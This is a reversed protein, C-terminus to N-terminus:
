SGDEYREWLSIYFQREVIEGSLAYFKRGYCHEQRRNDATKLMEQMVSILPSIDM